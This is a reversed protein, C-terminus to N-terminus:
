EKIVYGQISLIQKEMQKYTKQMREYAFEIVANDSSALQFIYDEIEYNLKDNAVKCLQSGEAALKYARINPLGLADNVGAGRGDEEILISLKRESLNYIHAHVRFGIHLDCEDYVEFGKDSNAINKIHIGLRELDSRIGLYDVANDRHCVLTIDTGEFFKKLFVLLEILQPYWNLNGCDSVCIKKINSLKAGTYTIQDIKDLNYWAPCGTMLGGDFGNNRLVNVSYYDRCGLIKSDNSVRQLFEAMKGVLPYSYITDVHTDTGFWGMGLIMMPIKIDTLNEIFPALNPYFENFYGPGGAFILIDNVNIEDLRDDLKQNRYFEHIECTPYYRKILTITRNKILFDGANKIAGHLLAIKM